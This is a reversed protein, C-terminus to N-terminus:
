DQSTVRVLASFFVNMLDDIPKLKLLRIRTHANRYYQPWYITLCCKVPQHFLNVAWRHHSVSFPSLAFAEWSDLWQVKLHLSTLRLCWCQSFYEPLIVEHTYTYQNIHLIQVRVKSCHAPTIVHFTVYTHRLRARHHSIFNAMLNYYSGYMDQRRVGLSGLAMDPDVKKGLNDNEESILIWTSAYIGEITLM